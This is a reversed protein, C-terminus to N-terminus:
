RAQLDNSTHIGFFHRLPQQLSELGGEVIGAAVWSSLQSRTRKEVYRVDLLVLAAWDDKHRLARGVAQNVSKACKVERVDVRAGFADLYQQRAALKPTDPPYPLGVIVVLRALGDKFDVGESLSGGVVAALVGQQGSNIATSYAFLVDSGRGKEEFFMPWNRSAIYDKFLGLFSFSPFFLVSGEHNIELALGTVCELWPLSRERQNFTLRLPEGDVSTVAHVAYRERAVVHEGTFETTPCTLLGKFADFERRPQMTGGALIVGHAREVLSKLGHEAGRVFICLSENQEVVVVAHEFPRVLLLLVDRAAFVASSDPENALGIGYLQQTFRGLIELSPGLRRNVAQCDLAGSESRILDLLARNLRRWQKLRVKSSPKVTKVAIEMIRDLTLLGRQSVEKSQAEVVSDLVNHGEDLILVNNTVFDVEGPVFLSTYPMLVVDALAAAKKTAYYPCLMHSMGWSVCEEIDMSKSQISNSFGGVTIAAAFSNLGNHFCCGSESVLKRCSDRVLGKPLARVGPHVCLVNRSALSVMGVGAGGEIRRLEGHYQALQSHTRSCIVVKRTADFLPELAVEQRQGSALFRKGLERVQSVRRLDEECAVEAEAKRQQRIGAVMWDPVANEDMPVDTLYLLSRRSFLWALVGTLIALTKGTGTPSEFIGVGRSDLVDTLAQRFAVQVSYPPFPFPFM